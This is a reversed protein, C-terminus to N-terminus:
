LEKNELYDQLDEKSYAGERIIFPTSGTVDLITSPVAGKKTEGELLAAVQEVIRPDVDELTAPIPEGSLNASTSFLPGTQSLLSLVKKDNPVRVAITGEDSTMYAPVESKAKFIITLPGPWFNAMIKESQLLSDPEVYESLESSGSILLLYPKKSRKKIKNLSLFGENTPLAYFGLVTDSPGVIVKGDRLLSILKRISLNDEWSLTKSTM